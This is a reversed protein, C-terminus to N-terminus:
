CMDTWPNEDKEDDTIDTGRWDTAIWRNWCIECWREEFPLRRKDADPRPFNPGESNCELCPFMRVVDFIDHVQFVNLGMVLEKLNSFPPAGREHREMSKEILNSFVKARLNWGDRSWSIYLVRFVKAMYSYPM